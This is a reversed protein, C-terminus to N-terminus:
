KKGYYMDAFSRREQRSKPPEDEETEEETEEVEEIPDAEVQGLRSDVASVIREECELLDSKTVLNEHDHTLEPHSHFEQSSVKSELEGIKAEIFGVKEALAVDVVNDAVTEIEEPQEVEITVDSM